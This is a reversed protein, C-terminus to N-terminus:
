SQVGDGRPDGEGTAVGDRGSRRPARSRDVLDMARCRPRPRMVIMGDALAKDRRRIALHSIRFWVLYDVPWGKRGRQILGITKHLSAYHVLKSILQNYTNM